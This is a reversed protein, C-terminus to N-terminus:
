LVLEKMFTSGPEQLVAATRAPTSATPAGLIVWSHTPAAPLEGGAEPRWVKRPTRPLASYFRISHPALPARGAQVEEAESAPLVGPHRSDLAEGATLAAGRTAYRTKSVLQTRSTGQKCHLVSVNQVNM